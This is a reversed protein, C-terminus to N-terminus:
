IKTFNGGLPYSVALSILQVLDNSEKSWNKVMWTNLNASFVHVKGLFKGICGRM